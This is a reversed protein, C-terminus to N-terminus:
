SEYVANMSPLWNNEERKEHEMTIFLIIKCYFVYEKIYFQETTWSSRRKISSSLM